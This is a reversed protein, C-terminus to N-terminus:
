EESTMGLDTRLYDINRSEIHYKTSPFHCYTIANDKSFSMHYYPAADGNTNVTIDYNYDSHEEEEQQRRLEEMINIVNIKDANEMVSVLKKGYTNELKTINPTKLTTLDFDIGMELLAQITVLSLREAGGRPNFDGHIINAKM